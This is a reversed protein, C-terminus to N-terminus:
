FANEQCCKSEFKVSIHEWSNLQCHSREAEPLPDAGFLRCDRVYILTSGTWQRINAASPTSSNVCQDPPRPPNTINEFPYINIVKYHTIDLVNWKLSGKAPYWTADNM